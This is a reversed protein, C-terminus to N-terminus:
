DVWPEWQLGATRVRRGPGRVLRLRVPSGNSKVPIRCGFGHQTRRGYGWVRVGLRGRPGKFLAAAGGQLGLGLLGGGEGAGLVRAEAM